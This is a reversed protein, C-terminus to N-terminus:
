VFILGCLAESSSCGDPCDIQLVQEQAGMMVEVRYTASSTTLM